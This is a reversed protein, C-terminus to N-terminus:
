VCEPKGEHSITTADGPGRPADEGRAAKKTEAYVLQCNADRQMHALWKAEFAVFAQDARTMPNENQHRYQM